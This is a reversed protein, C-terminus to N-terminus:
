SQFEEGNQYEAPSKSKFSSKSLGINNFSEQSKHCVIIEEVAFYIL